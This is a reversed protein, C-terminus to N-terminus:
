NITGDDEVFWKGNRLPFQGPREVKVFEQLEIVISKAEPYDEFWKKRVTNKAQPCLVCGDRKFSDYLPSLLGAEWCYRFADGETYGIECLISRKKESLQQLRRTEDCALGVDEYDYEGIDARRLAKIKSEKKFNCMSTIFPPFGFARGKYKGMTSRRKCFDYYSIGSVIHIEAGLERFHDATRLIHEYHDKLLLPITDTFMPIYCVGIVKDGRDLHLSLACTSDKGGSWSVKVTDM